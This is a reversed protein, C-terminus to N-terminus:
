GRASTTEHRVSFQCRRTKRSLEAVGVGAGRQHERLQAMVDVPPEATCAIATCPKRAGMELGSLVRDVDGIGAM